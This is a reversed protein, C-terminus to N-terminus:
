IHDNNQKGTQGEQNDNINKRPNNHKEVHKIFTAHKTSTFHRKTSDIKNNM